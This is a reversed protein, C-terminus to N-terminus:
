GGQIVTHRVARGWVWRIVGILLVAWLLQVALATGISGTAPAGVYISVPIYAISQFPLLQVVSRLLDPMFWLPVLAGTAFNGILRYMMEFGTMELTWFSVLGIVMNLQVAIIWALLFSVLYGIGEGVSAPPRLEGLVFAIPVAVAVMPLLGIMDGAAGAILQSPYSVPRSLDFGIQGERIRAQIDGSIEPRLFYLQLNAITLYVLTQQLSIGDVTEQAGYAATWVITLLYITVATLVVGMFVNFRYMYQWRINARAIEVWAPLNARLTM